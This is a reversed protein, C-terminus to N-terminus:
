FRSIVIPAHELTLQDFEELGHPAFELLYEPNARFLDKFVPYKFRVELVFDMLMIDTLTRKGRQIGMGIEKAGIADAFANVADTTPTDLPLYVGGVTHIRQATFQAHELLRIRSFDENLYFEYIYELLTKHVM